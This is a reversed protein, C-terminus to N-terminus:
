AYLNLRTGSPGGPEPRNVGLAQARERTEAAQNTRASDQAPDIGAKALAEDACTACYFGNVVNM